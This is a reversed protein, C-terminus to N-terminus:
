ACAICPERVIWAYTVCVTVDPIRLTWVDAVTGAVCEIWSKRAM